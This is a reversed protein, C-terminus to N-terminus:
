TTPWMAALAEDFWLQMEARVFGNAKACALAERLLQGPVAKGVFDRRVVFDEPQGRFRTSGVAGHVSRAEDACRERGICGCDLKPWRGSKIWVDAQIRSM